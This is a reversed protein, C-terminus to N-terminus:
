PTPRDDSGIEVGDVVIDGVCAAGGCASIARSSARAIVPDAIEVGFAGGALDIGHRAGDIRPADIRTDTSHSVQLAVGRDDTSDRPDTIHPEDLVTGLCYDIRHGYEGYGSVECREFLSDVCSEMRLPVDGGVTTVERFVPGVLPDLRHIEARSEDGGEDGFGTRTAREVVLGSDTVSAVRAIQCGYGSGARLPHRGSWGEYPTEILLHDGATFGATSVVDIRREDERIPGAARTSTAPSAGNYHSGRFHFGGADAFEITAGGGDITLATGIAHLEEFRFIGDRFLVRDGTEARELVSRFVGDCPDGDGIGAVEALADM